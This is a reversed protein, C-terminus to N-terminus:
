LVLEDLKKRGCAETSAWVSVSRPGAYFVGWGDHDVLVFGFCWCLVDSWLEGAHQKGVCMRKTMAEWSNNIVVALGAGGSHSPHGTRIFGICHPNDFYDTQTGYAYM